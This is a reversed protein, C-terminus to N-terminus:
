FEAGMFCSRGVGRGWGRALVTRDEMETFKVVRPM